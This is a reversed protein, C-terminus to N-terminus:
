VKNEPLLLHRTRAGDLHQVVGHGPGLAFIVALLKDVDETQATEEWKEHLRGLSVLLCAWRFLLHFTSSNSHKLFEKSMLKM